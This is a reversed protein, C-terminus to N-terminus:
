VILHALFILRSLSLRTHDTIIPLFLHATPSIKSNYLNRWPIFPATSHIIFQGYWQLIFRTKIRSKGLTRVSVCSQSLDGVHHILGNDLTARGILGLSPGHFLNPM